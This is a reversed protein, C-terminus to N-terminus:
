EGDKGEKKKIYLVMGFSSFGLLIFFLGLFQSDDTKVPKANADTKENNENPKETKNEIEETSFIWRVKGDLLTYDNNLEPPVTITFKFIDETNSKIEGLLKNNINSNLAGQYVTEQKGNIETEIKLQIKELIDKNELIESDFYLKIPNNSTNKLSITDSYEDGPMLVPFNLFFDDKNKILEKTNGQYQVEFKLNDSKKFSSVNYNKDKNCLLIEVDGWPNSSNFDPSFNKSQIADVDIIVQFNSNELEQPFDTPIKLGQFFDVSEDTKLINKYYYYDNAKVWEDSIGFINSDNLHEINKFTPKVRIWCDNGDNEIRPIKSITKGPLVQKNNEYPIEKGEKIEYEELEIDVIGTTFHNDVSVKPMALITVGTSCFLFSLCLLFIILKQTKKM